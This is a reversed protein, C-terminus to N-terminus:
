NSELVATVVRRAVDTLLPLTRLVFPFEPVGPDTM